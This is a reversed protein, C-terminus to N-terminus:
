SFEFEVVKTKTRVSALLRRLLLSLLSHARYRVHALARSSRDAPPEPPFCAQHRVPHLLLPPGNRTSVCFFSTSAWFDLSFHALIKGKQERM